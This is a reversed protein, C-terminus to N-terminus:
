RCEAVAVKLAAIFRANDSETGVTVRLHGPLGNGETPRVRVRQRLLAANVAGPAGPPRILVFNADSEWFPVGLRSLEGYLHRRGKAVAAVTGRVYDGDGLAAIGAVEALRNHHYERKFRAVREVAAPAAIGYGLRLGALGYVKSFTHVVIVPRGELVFGIADPFDNRSAFHYYVEDLVVTVHAPLADLLSVCSVAPVSVGTPNGPNCLYLLRTRETIATLIRGQDLAFTAADLPADVIRARQLQATRAYVPFTPSSIVAEDEAGLHARAILELVESGSAAAFFNNATLGRGHYTALAEPLHDERAPYRNLGSLERSIANIVAASPAFPSENASLDTETM